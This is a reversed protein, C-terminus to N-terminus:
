QTEQNQARRWPWQKIASDLGYAAAFALFVPPTMISVLQLGGDPFGKVAVYGVITLYFVMVGCAAERKYTKVVVPNPTEVM